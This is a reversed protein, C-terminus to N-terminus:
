LFGPVPREYLEKLRRLGDVVGGPVRESELGLVEFARVVAAMPAGHWVVLEEVVSKCIMPQFDRLRIQRYLGGVEDAEIMGQAAQHARYDNASPCTRRQFIGHKAAQTHSQYDKKKTSSSSTWIPPSSSGVPTM